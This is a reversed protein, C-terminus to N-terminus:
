ALLAEASGADCGTARVLADIVCDKTVNLLRVIRSSDFSGSVSDGVEPRCGGIWEIITLRSDQDFIAARCRAHNVAFVTYMRILAYADAVAHRSRQKVLEDFLEGPITTQSEDEVDLGRRLDFSSERWWAQETAEEEHPDNQM